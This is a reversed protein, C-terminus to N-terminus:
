SVTVDETHLGKGVLCHFVCQGHDKKWCLAVDKTDKKWCLAVDKTDKKWCLAVDKTDMKWCLAVDKTDERHVTQQKTPQLVTWGFSIYIQQM